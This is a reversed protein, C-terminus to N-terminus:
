HVKVYLYQVFFKLFLIIIWKGEIIDNCIVITLSCVKYILYM